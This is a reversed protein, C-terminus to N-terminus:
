ANRQGRVFCAYTKYQIYLQGPTQLVMQSINKKKIKSIYCCKQMLCNCLGCLGYDRNLKRTKKDWESLAGTYKRKHDPSGASTYNSVALLKVPIPNRKEESKSRQRTGCCMVTKEDWQESM